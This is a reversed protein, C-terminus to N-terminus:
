AQAAMEDTSVINQCKDPVAKCFMRCAGNKDSNGATGCGNNILYVAKGEACFHQDMKGDAHAYEIGDRKRKVPNRVMRAINEIRYQLKQDGAANERCDPKTKIEKVAALCFFDVVPKLFQRLLLFIFGASFM